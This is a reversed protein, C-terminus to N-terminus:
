ITFCSPALRSSTASRPGRRAKGGAGEGVRRPRWRGCRWRGSVPAERGVVLAGVGVTATGGGGLAMFGPLHRGGTARPAAVPRGSRGRQAPGLLGDQPPQSGRM